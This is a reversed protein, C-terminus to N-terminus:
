MAYTKKCAATRRSRGPESAAAFGPRLTEPLSLWTEGALGRFTSPVEIRLLAPDM